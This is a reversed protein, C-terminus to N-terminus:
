TISATTSIRRANPLETGSIPKGAARPGQGAIHHFAAGTRRRIVARDLGHEVIAGIQQMVDQLDRGRRHGVVEVGLDLGARLGHHNEIGPAAGQRMRGVALERQGVHLADHAAQLAAM